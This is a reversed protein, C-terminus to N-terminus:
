RATSASLVIQPGLEQWSAAEFEIRCLGCTTLELPAGGALHQALVSLAPNHGIVLQCEIGDPVGHLTALLADAAGAYLVSECQPEGLGLQEILIQATERTRTAPSILIADPRVGQRRLHQALQRVQLRGHATLSRQADTGGARLQEAEAHRLLLLRKM